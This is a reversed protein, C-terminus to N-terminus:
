RRRGKLPMVEASAKGSLIAGARETAERLPDPALHAYRHTTSPQTHGLLAGITLLSFGSGALTSAYSHRLDHIRLGTIDALKLIQAWDRKLGSRYGRPGPGPFVFRSTKERNALLQRAPASLPVRHETKQKTTAGPKTWTGQADFQDWTASQAEGRRCGTLLCLRFLDAIDQNSYDALAKTLRALEDASLYRKRKQEPNRHVGHAPNDKRWNWRIALAFMKGLATVVRNALYPARKSITRHLRDIDEYEVAAVKVKGLVPLIENVIFGRYMTRTSQRLRPLHESEFRECLDAVTPAGRVAALEGVPDGGGDILRKVRKAEERAAPVSWAPFAGITYRREVGDSKRRYNVIFAIAGAATIRAGFGPLREDYAIRNGKAPPELARVIRDTLGMTM